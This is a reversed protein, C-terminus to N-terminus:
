ARRRRLMVLGVGVFALLWTLLVANSAVQDPVATTCCGGGSGGGVTPPITATGTITIVYPSEDADDNAISVTVSFAGVLNLTFVLSANESTSAAISTPGTYTVSPAVSFGGSNVTVTFIPAPGLTLAAAGTNALNIPVSSSSGTFLSGVDITGADAVPTSNVSVDFEPQPGASTGTVAFVYPSENADDNAISVTFSFAGSGSTTFDITASETASAAITTGGAYNVTPGISFTGSNVTVTFIPVPGLTLPASGTNHMDLALSQPTAGISGIDRTGSHAIATSELDCDLEPAASTVTALVRFTYPDEDADSSAILVTIDILGTASPTFHLSATMSSGAAISSTGGPSIVTPASSFTGANVVTTFIPAPGLLLTANGNNELVITRMQAVGTGITGISDFGKHAVSAGGVLVDLEAASGATATGIVQIVSNAEDPDDSAITVTFSFTGANPTMDVTFNQTTGAGIATPGGYTVSPGSAFTGSTIGVNFPPTLNLTSAGENQLQFTLTRAAAPISILDVVRRAMHGLSHGTHEIDIDPDSILDYHVAGSFVRPVGVPNLPPLSGPFYDGGSGISGSITMNGDTLDIGTANAYGVSITTNSSVTCVGIVQGASLYLDLNIPIAILAGTSTFNLIAAGAYIWNADGPTATSLNYWLEVTTSGVDHARVSVHRLIVPVNATVHGISGRHANNNPTGVLTMSQAFAPAAGAALLLVALALQWARFAHLSPM